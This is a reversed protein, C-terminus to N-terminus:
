GQQRWATITVGPRDPHDPNIRVWHVQAGFRYGKDDIDCAFRAAIPRTLHGIMAMEGLAPVHVEVANSDYPNDPNRVLVVVLPEEKAEAEDQMWSLTHLNDPYGPTFSVGVVDYQAHESVSPLFAAQKSVITERQERLREAKDM